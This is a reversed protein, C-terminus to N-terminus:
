NGIDCNQNGRTEMIDIEGSKPWGGYAEDEPLMWIAPWIWDGRPLQAKVEVKGYKMSFKQASRIRASQIPNLVNGSGGASRECGYWANSTCVGAPTGGWLNMSGNRVTDEGIDEATLTPQLYLM